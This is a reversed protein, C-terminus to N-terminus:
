AKSLGLWAEGGPLQVTVEAQAGTVRGMTITSTTDAGIVALDLGALGPGDAYATAMDGPNLGAQQRLEQISRTVEREAGERVLEPTLATDLEAAEALAAKTTVEKVNVEAALLALLAPENTLDATQVFLTALPQRVKIGSKARLALAAAALDRVLAMNQQLKADPTGSTPWDTLHVSIPDADSRLEAYLAEAFFPAFPAMLLSLTRLTEALTTACAVYDGDSTPRQLRKRSSRVYWRSLDDVLSEIALIAGRADYADLSATAQAVTEDRRSVIWADLVSPEAKATVDKRGYLKWFSLANYAILHVRRVAKGLEAEDFNKTDGPDTAAYFYWRVADVGNKNILEWPDLVNGRSKSMKKGHKDHLLGLSIVNKYPAPRGLLTAVELMSYFWGRTQDVGEAIFDAPYAPEEKSFPYHSQALPVGGSDFWVDAVEPTRQMHGKCSPCDLLVSDVYPRHLNVAGDEDRPLNRFSIHMTEGPHLLPPHHLRELAVEDSWGEAASALMRLPGDHGVILVKKGAHVKEFEQLFLWARRRTDAESEGGPYREDLRADPHERWFTRLDDLSKGSFTGLDIERLREDYTVVPVGLIEAVVHATQQTRLFPSAVVLDIGTDKLATAADAAEQRGKETLESTTGVSDLVNAVNHTAEGHRMLWYENRAGGSREHLEDLGGIVEQHDCDTCRWIPLPTGWYRERSLNWDRAERLWTGFRGEKTHSPVWNVTENRDTMEQRLQSVAVFWADHAYYLLPTQCRWCHPYEHEYTEKKLLAGTARLADLIKGETESDKVYLGALGPVDPTFRGLEDVTHVQPLGAEKGLAYDDEGYMVATHVVGTGDTTTVFDALLVQYSVDSKLPAFNFLPAYKLGALEKGTVTAVVKAEEGFVKAVLDSAVIVRDSERQVLSYAIDPGVALAVNGPLTWPTTTWAAISTNELSVDGAKQGPLLTFLATVSMDKDTQYGLAVESASLGTGCRTCWPIVKHGRYLYGKEDIQKIIWWLSEIYDVSYTVYPHELDVWYGIRETLDKWEAEHEWVLEQCKKNFAAIGLKEIDKKNTIGLEKEAALEVPLGHTDWGSKRPVFRGRMTQYRPFVDKFVRSLVHHIGPKGNAGPPGEYFVFPKGDKRLELSKGFVDQEKWFALVKEETEPLSFSEGFFSDPTMSERQSDPSAPMYAGRDYRFVWSARPRSSLTYIWCSPHFKISYGM